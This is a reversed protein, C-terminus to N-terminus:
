KTKKASVHLKKPVSRKSAHKTTTVNSTRSTCDPCKVAKDVQLVLKSKHSVDNASNNSMQWVFKFNNQAHPKRLLLERSCFSMMMAVALWLRVRKLAADAPLCLPRANIEARCESATREFVMDVRNADNGMEGTLSGSSADGGRLFLCRRVCMDSSSFCSLLYPLYGRTHTSTM